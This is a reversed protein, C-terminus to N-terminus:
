KAPLEVPEGAKVCCIREVVKRGCRGGEIGAEYAIVQLGPFAGLLEGPELLHAPNRPRGFQENGRAFTEYVLVGGPELAQALAPFLPRHLYNTVVVGDFTRGAFPWPSGDELNTTVVEARAALDAVHGTDKDVVTLVHGRELLARAHRGGGCAVDLVTGGAPLLASFRMVWPSPDSLSLHVHPPPM